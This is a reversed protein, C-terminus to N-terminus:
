RVGFMGKMNFSPFQPLPAVPAPMPRPAIFNSFWNNLGGMVNGRDTQQMGLGQDVSKPTSPAMRTGMVPLSRNFLDSAGGGFMNGDFQRPQVSPTNPVPPLGCIARIIPNTPEAPGIEPTPGEVPLPLPTPANPGGSPMVMPRNFPMPQGVGLGGNFAPASTVAPQPIPQQVNPGGSPLMMQQNMPQASSVVGNIGGMGGNAAGFMGTNATPLKFGGFM